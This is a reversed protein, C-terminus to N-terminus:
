TPPSGTHPSLNLGDDIVWAPISYSIRTFFSSTTLYLISQMKFHYALVPRSLHINLSVGKKERYIYIVRSIYDQQNDIPSSSSNWGSAWCKKTLFVVQFLKYNQHLFNKDWNWNSRFISKYIKRGGCPHFVFILQPM